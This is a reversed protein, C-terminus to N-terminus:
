GLFKEQHSAAEAEKTLMEQEVEAKQTKMAVLDAQVARGWFARKRIWWM